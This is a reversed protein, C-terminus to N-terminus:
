EVFEQGPNKLLEGSVRTPFPSMTGCKECKGVLFRDDAFPEAEKRIWKNCERCKVYIKNNKSKATVPKRPKVNSKQRLIPRFAGVTSRDKPKNGTAVWECKGAKDKSESLSGDRVHKRMHSVKAATTKSILDGCIICKDDKQKTGKKPINL